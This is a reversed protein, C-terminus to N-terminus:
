SIVADIDVERLIIYPAGNVAVDHGVEPSFIVTDNPSVWHPLLTGDEARPGDGIAIVRGRTVPPAYTEALQIGSETTLPAQVHPKVLVRDGLLRM